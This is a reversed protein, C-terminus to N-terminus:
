AGPIPVYVIIVQIHIKFTLRNNSTTYLGTINLTYIVYLYLHTRM